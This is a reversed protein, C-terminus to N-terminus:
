PPGPTPRGPPPARRGRRQRVRPGRGEDQDECRGPDLLCAGHDVQPRGHVSHPGGHLLHRGLHGPEGAQPDEPCQRNWRDSRARGVARAGGYAGMDTFAPASEDFSLLVTGTPPRPRGGGGPVFTVDDFYYSKQVAAAKDRGFDFFITAKDYTYGLNLAPTGAVNNKFDFTLTQWGRGRDHHDRDRRVQHCRHPGRGEHAGSHRRRAVLRAGLDQHRDHHVPGESQLGAGRRGHDHHRRVVRRGCARVVKAVKNAANTPDEAVTSDEAGGFGILGYDVSASDFSVPLSM